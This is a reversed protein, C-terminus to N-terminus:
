PLLRVNASCPTNPARTRRIRRTLTLQLSSLLSSGRRSAMGESARILLGSDGRRTGELGSGIGVIRGDAIAVDAVRGTAGTGDVVTGGRIVIDATM